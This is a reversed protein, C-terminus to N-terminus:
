DAIELETFDVEMELHLAVALRQLTGLQVGEKGNRLGRWVPISVQAADTLVKDTIDLKKQQAVFTEVIKQLVTERKKDTM